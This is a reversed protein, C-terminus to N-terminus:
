KRSTEGGEENIGNGHFRACSFCFDYNICLSTIIFIIYYTHACRMTAAVAKVSYWIAGIALLLLVGWFCVCHLGMYLRVIGLCPFPLQLILTQSDLLKFIEFNSFKLTQFDLLKFFQFISFNFIWFNLFEFISFIFFHFFHFFSFNLFELFEFIHYFSHVCIVSM